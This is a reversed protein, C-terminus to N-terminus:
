RNWHASKAESRQQSMHFNVSRLITQHRLIGDGTSYKSNENEEQGITREGRGCGTESQPLKIWAFPGLQKPYLVLCM